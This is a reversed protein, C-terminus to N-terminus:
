DKLTDVLFRVTELPIQFYINEQNPLVYLGPEEIVYEMMKLYDLHTRLTKASRIGLKACIDVQPPLERKVVVTRHNADPRSFSQLYAYLEANIKKDNLFTAEELSTNAPFRKEIQSMIYNEGGKM